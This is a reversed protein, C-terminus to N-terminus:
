IGKQGSMPVNLSGGHASSRLILILIKGVVCKAALSGSLIEQKSLAQGNPRASHCRPSFKRHDAVVTEPALASLSLSLSSQKRMRM